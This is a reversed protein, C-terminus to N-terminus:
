LALPGHQDMRKERRSWRAWRMNGVIDMKSGMRGSKSGRGVRLGGSSGGM